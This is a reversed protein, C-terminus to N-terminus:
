CSRGRLRGSGPLGPLANGQLKSRRVRCTRHCQPLLILGGPEVRGDETIYRMAAIETSKGAAYSVEELSVGM